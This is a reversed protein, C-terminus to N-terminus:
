KAGEIIKEWAELVAERTSPATIDWWERWAAGLGKRSSIDAVIAEAAERPTM